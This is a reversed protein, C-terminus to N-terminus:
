KRNVVLYSLATTQKKEKKKKAETPHCFFVYFPSRCLVSVLAHRRLPLYFARSPFAKKFHRLAHFVFQLFFWPNCIKQWGHHKTSTRTAM